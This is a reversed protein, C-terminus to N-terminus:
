TGKPSEELVKPGPPVILSFAGTVGIEIKLGVRGIISFGDAEEQKGTTAATM